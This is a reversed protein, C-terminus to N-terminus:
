AIRTYGSGTYLLTVAAHANTHFSEASGPDITMSGFVWDINIIGTYSQNMLIIRYLKNSPVSDNAPLGITANSTVDLFINTDGLTASYAVPSAGETIFYQGTNIDTPIEGADITSSDSLTLILRGTNDISANTVSKGDEGKDGKDGKDGTDGKDGKVSSWKLWVGGGGALVDNPGALAANNNFKYIAGDKVLVWHSDNGSLQSLEAVTTAVMVGREKLAEIVGNFIHKMGKADKDWTVTLTSPNKALGVLSLLDQISM